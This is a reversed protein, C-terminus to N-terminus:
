LKMIKYTLVNESNIVDVFYCGEPVATLDISIKALGDQGKVVASFVYRGTVDRISIKIEENLIGYFYIETNTAVPNPHISVFEKNIYNVAEIKSHFTKGNHDTQKLLYYSIGDMPNEDVANYKVISNSNGASKVKTVTTWVQRDKSKQLTFYDNDIETATAWECYVKKDKQKVQFYLLGLPLGSSSLIYYPCLTDANCPSSMVLFYCVTYNAGNTLGTFTGTGNSGMLSGDSSNYISFQASNFGGCGGTSFWGANLSIGTGNPTITYCKQLTDNPPRVTYCAGDSQLQTYSVPPSTYFMAPGCPTSYGSCSQPTNVSICFTSNGDTGCSGPSNPPYGIQIMYWQGTTLGTLSIVKEIPTSTSAYCAIQQGSTPVCGGTASGYPGYVALAIYCVGSLQNMDVFMATAVAQFTYWVSHTIGSGCITTVEGSQTGSSCLTGRTCAAGSTLTVASACADNTASPSCAATTKFAANNNQTNTNFSKQLSSDISIKVHQGYGVVALMLLTSCITLRTVNKFDYYTINKKM